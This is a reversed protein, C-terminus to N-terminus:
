PFLLFIFVAQASVLFSVFFMFLKRLLYVM